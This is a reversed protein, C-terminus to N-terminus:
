ALRDVAQLLYTGLTGSFVATMHNEDRLVLAGGIVPYCRRADCFMRTLNITRVRESGMRRAAVVAPDRTSRRAARSERM